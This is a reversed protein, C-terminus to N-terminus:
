YNMSNKPDDKSGPEKTASSSKPDSSAAEKKNKNPNCVVVKVM